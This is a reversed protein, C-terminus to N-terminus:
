KNFVKKIIMDAVNQALLRNGEKTCHGFDGAFRDLFYDSYRGNALAKEFVPKHDVLIINNLNVQPELMAKLAQLDRLAYPMYVIKVNHRLLIQTLTLYNTKTGLNIDKQNIESAQQSYFDAREQDGAKLYCASLYNYFALKKPNKSILRKLLSTVTKQDVPNQCLPELWEDGWSDYPIYPMMQAFKTYKKQAILCTGLKKIIWTNLATNSPDKLLQSYLAQAFAYNQAAFEIEAEIFMRKYVPPANKVVNMIESVGKKEHGQATDEQIPAPSSTTAPFATSTTTHVALKNKFATAIWRVLKVVRLDALFTKLDNPATKIEPKYPSLNLSDNIGMMVVVIQPKYEDLWHEVNQLIFNTDIGPVSKNIVKFHKNLSSQNLIRELQNPYADDGGMFTTSEGLCLIRYANQTGMNNKYNKIALEIFGASRLGFELFLITIILSSFILILKQRLRM